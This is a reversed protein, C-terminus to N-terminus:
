RRTPPLVRRRMLIDHVRENGEGRAHEAQLRLAEAEDGRALAEEIRQDFWEDWMVQKDWDFPIGDPPRPQFAAMVRFRIM